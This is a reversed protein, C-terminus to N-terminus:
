TVVGKFLKANLGVLAGSNIYVEKVQNIMFVSLTFLLFYSVCPTRMLGALEYISYFTM